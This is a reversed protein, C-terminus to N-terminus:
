PADHRRVASTPGLVIPLYLKRASLTITATAINSNALGDNARYTFTVVGIFSLPPTFTFAGTARFDLTGTLPGAVVAATLVDHNADSDNALVGPAPVVLTSNVLVTYADNSAIPPANAITVSVASTNNALNGDFSATAITAANTFVTGAPGGTLVGTVIVMGGAGPALNGVLWAYPNVGVPTLSAGSNTYGVNVLNTPVVDTLRVAAAVGPGANSFVVTYTLVQGPQRMSASAAQGIGVDAAATFPSEDFGIDFGAGLPRPDGEFDTAVGQDIGADIALSGNGLHYDDAAPNVFLPDGNLSHVGGSVAGATNAGNGFFLTYDQFVTGTTVSIGVTHSAIITDTIGVTGALVIIAPDAAVTPSAITTHLIEVEGQSVQLPRTNRAFLANSIRAQVPPGSGLHGIILGASTNNVFQTGTLAISQFAFVGIENDQFRGGHMTAPGNAGAAFSNNHIFQTGTLILAGVSVIGGVNCPTQLCRDYQFLGGQLTVTGSVFVGGAELQATNSLFQVGSLALDDNVYLGGAKCIALNCQNDQFLSNQLTAPGDAYLGGGRYDATNSMLRLNSLLPQASGTILVGGGCGSPCAGGTASGGAFTLGSIVVHNDISAGTITLVRQGSVAQVIVTASSVGTLSVAKSLTLSETYLGIPVLVTDGAQAADIAAQITTTVLVLVAAPRPAPAALAPRAPRLAALLVGAVTLGIIVTLACAVM